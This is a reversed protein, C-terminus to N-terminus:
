HAITGDVRLELELEALDVHRVNNQHQQYKAVNKGKKRHRLSAIQEESLLGERIQFPDVPILSTSGSISAQEVDRDFNLTRDPVV